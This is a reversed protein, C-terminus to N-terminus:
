ASAATMASRAPTATGATRWTILVASPDASSAISRTSPRERSRIGVCPMLSMISRSSHFCTSPSCRALIACRESRAAFMTASRVPRGQITSKLKESSPAVCRCIASSTASSSAESAARTPAPLAAPLATATMPGSATAAATGNSCGSAREAPVRWAIAAWSPRSVLVRAAAAAALPRSSWSSARIWRTRRLVSRTRSGAGEAPVPLCCSALWGTPRSPM